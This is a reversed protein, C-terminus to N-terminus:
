GCSTTKVRITDTIQHGIKQYVQRLSARHLQFSWVHSIKHGPDAHQYTKTHKQHNKDTQQLEMLSILPVDDATPSSGKQIESERRSTKVPEHSENILHADANPGSNGDLEEHEKVIILITKQVRAQNVTAFLM